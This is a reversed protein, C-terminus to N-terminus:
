FISKIIQHKRGRFPSTSWLLVSDPVEWGLWGPSRKGLFTLDLHQWLLLLLLGLGPQIQGVGVLSVSYFCECREEEAEQTLVKFDLFWTELWAIVFSVIPLLYGFAGKTLLQTSLLLFWLSHGLRPIFCCQSIM